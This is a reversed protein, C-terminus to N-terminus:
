RVAVLITAITLWEWVELHYLPIGQSDGVRRNAWSPIRLIYSFEDIYKTLKNSQSKLIKEQDVSVTDNYYVNYFQTPTYM